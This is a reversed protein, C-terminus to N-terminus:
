NVVLVSVPEGGDADRTFFGYPSSYFVDSVFAELPEVAAGELSVVALDGHLKQADQLYAILESIRM